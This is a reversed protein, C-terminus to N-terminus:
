ACGTQPKYCASVYHRSFLSVVKQQLYFLKISILSCRMGGGRRGRMPIFAYSTNEARAVLGNGLASVSSEEASQGENADLSGSRPAMSQIDIM